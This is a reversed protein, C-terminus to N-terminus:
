RAVIAKKDPAGFSQPKLSQKQPKISAADAADGEKAAPKFKSDPFLALIRKIHNAIVKEDKPKTYDETSRELNYWLIDGSETDIVAIETELTFPPQASGGASVGVLLQTAISAVNRVLQAANMGQSLRTGTQRTLVIVNAQHQEAFYNPGSGIEYTFSTKKNAKIENVAQKYLTQIDFWAEKLKPDAELKEPDVAMTSVDYGKGKFADDINKASKTEVTEKVDALPKNGANFTIEYVEVDPPLLAVKRMTEHRKKFDPHVKVTACGGLFLSSVIVPMITYKSFNLLNM